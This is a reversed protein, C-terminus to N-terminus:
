KELLRTLYDQQIQHDTRVQEMFQKTNKEIEVIEEIAKNSQELTKGMVELTQTTKELFQVHSKVIPPAILWLGFFLLTSPVGVSQIFSLWFDPDTLKRAMTVM